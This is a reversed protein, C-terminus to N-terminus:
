QYVLASVSKGAGALMKINNLACMRVEFAEDEDTNTSKYKYLLYKYRQVLLALMKIIASRVCARM